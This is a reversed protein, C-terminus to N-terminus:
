HRHRPAHRHERDPTHTKETTSSASPEKSSVSDSSSGADAEGSRHGKAGSSASVSPAGNTVQGAGAVEAVRDSVSRIADGNKVKQPRPPTLGQLTQQLTDPTFQLRLPDHRGSIRAAEYVVLREARGTGALRNTVEVVGSLTVVVTEVIVANRTRM